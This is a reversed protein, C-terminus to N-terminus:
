SCFFDMGMGQINLSAENDALLALHCFSILVKSLYNEQKIFLTLYCDYLICDNIIGYVRDIHLTILPANITVCYDRMAEIYITKM